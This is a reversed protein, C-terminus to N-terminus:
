DSLALRYCLPKIIDNFRKPRYDRQKSLEASFVFMTNSKNNISLEHGNCLVTLVSTIILIIVDFVKNGTVYKSQPPPMERKKNVVDATRICVEVRRASGKKRPRSRCMAVTRYMCAQVLGHKSSTFHMCRAFTSNM